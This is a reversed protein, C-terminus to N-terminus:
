FMTFSSMGTGFGNNKLSPTESQLVSRHADTTGSVTGVNRKKQQGVHTKELPANKNKEFRAILISKVVAKPTFLTIETDYYGLESILPSLGTLLM